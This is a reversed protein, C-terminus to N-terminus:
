SVLMLREAWKIKKQLLFTVFYENKNTMHVHLFYYSTVQVVIQLINCLINLTFYTM